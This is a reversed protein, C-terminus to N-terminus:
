VAVGKQELLQRISGLSTITMIESASFGVNYAKELAMVLEVHRLSDWSRLTKPSTENTLNEAPEKLVQAFVEEIRM